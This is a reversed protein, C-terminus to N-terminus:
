RCAAALHVEDGAVAFDLLQQLLKASGGAPLSHYLQMKYSSKMHKTVNM